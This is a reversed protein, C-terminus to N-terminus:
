RGIKWFYVGLCGRGHVCWARDCEGDAERRQGARGRGLGLTLPQEDVAVETLLADLQRPQLIPLEREDVVGPAHARM